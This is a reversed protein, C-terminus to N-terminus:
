RPPHARVRRARILSTFSFSDHFSPRILAICDGNSLRRRDCRGVISERRVVRLRSARERSSANRASREYIKRKQIRVCARLNRPAIRRILKDRIIRAVDSFRLGVRSYSTLRDKVTVTLAPTGGRTEGLERRSVFRIEQCSRPTEV